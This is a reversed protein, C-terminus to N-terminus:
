VEGLLLHRRIGLHGRRWPDQRRHYLLETQSGSRLLQGLRHLGGHWHVRHNKLDRRGIRVGSTSRLDGVRDALLQCLRGASKDGCFSSPVFATCAVVIASASTGSSAMM